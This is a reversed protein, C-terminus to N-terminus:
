PTRFGTAKTVEERPGRSERPPLDTFPVARRRPPAAQGLRQRKRSAASRLQLLWRQAKRCCITSKHQLSTKPLTQVDTTNSTVTGQPDLIALWRVSKDTQLLSKRLHPLLWLLLLPMGEEGKSGPAARPAQGGCSLRAGRGKQTGRRKIEENVKMSGM